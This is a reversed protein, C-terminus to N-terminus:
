HDDRRIDLLVLGALFDVLEVPDFGAEAGAVALHVGVAIESKSYIPEHHLTDTADVALLVLGKEEEFGAPRPWAPKLRPGPLGAYVAHYEGYYLVAWKTARVNLALGPGARVRLRAIDALDALRNPAYWLLRHLVGHRRVSQTGNTGGNDAATVRPLLALLLAFLLALSPRSMGPLKLPSAPPTLRKAM